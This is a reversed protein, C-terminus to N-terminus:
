RGSVRVRIGLLWLGFGMAWKGVALVPERIGFPWFVILLILLFFTLIAYILGLLITRV